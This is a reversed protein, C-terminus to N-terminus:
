IYTFIERNLQPISNIKFSVDAIRLSLLCANNGHYKYVIETMFLDIVLLLNPFNETRLKLMFTLM